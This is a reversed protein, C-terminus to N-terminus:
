LRVAGQPELVAGPQGHDLAGALREVGGLAEHPLVGGLRWGSRCSCSSSPRSSARLEGGRQRALVVGDLQRAVDVRLDGGLQADALQAAGAREAMVGPPPVDVHVSQGSVWLM